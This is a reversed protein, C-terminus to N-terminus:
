QGRSSSERVVLETPVVTLHQPPEPGTLARHLVAVLQEGVREPWVRTSTLPPHASTALVSDGVATVAIDEPVAIGRTQLARLAGIALTDNVCLLADVDPHEDLLAQTADFGAPETLEAASCMPGGPAREVFSAAIDIPYSSDARFNVMAIRECGQARLHELADACIGDHDNDVVPPRDDDLVRGATVLGIGREILGDVFTDGRRPDVVIAGDITRHSLLPTAFAEADPGPPVLVFSYGLALAAQSLAPIMQGYYPSLAVEHSALAIQLALTMTRGRALAQAGKHPQYGLREATDLVKKATAESVPRKRSYVHSVTTISVGAAQAVDFITPPSTEDLASM